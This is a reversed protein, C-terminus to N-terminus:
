LGAPPRVRRGTVADYRGLDETLVQSDPDTVELSVTHQGTGGRVDFTVGTGRPEGDVLWRIAEGTLPGHSPSLGQATLVPGDNEGLVLEPPRRPLAFEPTQVFATHYGNTGLVQVFCHDGGPLQRLDLDYSESRLNVGPRVQVGGAADTSFRVFYTVPGSALM